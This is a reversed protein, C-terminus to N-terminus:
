NVITENEFKSENCAISGTKNEKLNRKKGFVLTNAYFLILKKRSKM